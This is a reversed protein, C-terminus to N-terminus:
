ATTVAPIAQKEAQVFASLADAAEIYQGRKFAKKGTLGLTTNAFRLMNTPTYSRNAKMGTRAYLRLASAVAACAFVNVARPGAFVAASGDSRYSISNATQM